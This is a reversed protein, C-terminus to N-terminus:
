SKLNMDRFSGNVAAWLIATVILSCNSASDANSAKAATFAFNRQEDFLFM